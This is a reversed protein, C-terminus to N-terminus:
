KVSGEAIAVQYRLPYNDNDQLVIQKGLKEKMNIIIPALLNMTSDSFNDKLTMVNYTLVDQEQTLKLEEKDEESLDFAYDKKFAFPFAVVFGIQVEETSQLLALPLDADIALLIFKKNDPFGPLGQEFTLIESENIEVEGLFKTQILM